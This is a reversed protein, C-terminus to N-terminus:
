QDAVVPRAKPLPISGMTASPLPDQKVTGICALLHCHLRISSSEFVPHRPVFPCPYPTPAAPQRQCVQLLGNLGWLALLMWYSSSLGFAINVLATAALGGPSLM